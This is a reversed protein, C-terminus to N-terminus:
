KIPSIFIFLFGQGIPFSSFVTESPSGYITRCQPAICLPSSHMDSLSKTSPNREVVKVISRNVDAHFPRFGCGYSIGPEAIHISANLDHENISKVDHYKHFGGM